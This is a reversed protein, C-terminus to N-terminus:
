KNMKTQGFNVFIYTEIPLWVCVYWKGEEKTKRKRKQEKERRSKGGNEM